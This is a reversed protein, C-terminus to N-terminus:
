RVKVRRIRGGMGSAPLSRTLLQTTSLQRTPNFWSLQNPQLLDTSSSQVINRRTTFNLVARLLTCAALCRLSITQHGLGILLEQCYDGLRDEIKLTDDQVLYM